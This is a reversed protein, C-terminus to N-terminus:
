DTSRSERKARSGHSRNLRKMAMELSVKMRQFAKALDGVEDNTLQEFEIAMNGISVQDAVRAMRKLPRTVTRNLFLNLLLIITVFVASIIGMILLFSRRAQTIVTDAPVSIMQAAVIENLKWGYGNTTGYREVVSRPAASPTSHCELCSAETVKLPRAIYFLEGSPASRFGRLEKINENDRFDEVLTTEFSDAKDRLNSPNLTAEKYFFDRYESNQRLSEFVERASYAPITEPLFREELRHVLEPQVQNSTYDRVSNMTEMLILGKSAIENEANRQLVAHLAVGIISLGGVLILLLLFTLKQRLKLHKFM